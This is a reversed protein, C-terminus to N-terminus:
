STGDDKDVPITEVKKRKFVLSWTKSDLAWYPGDEHEVKPALRFFMWILLALILITILM